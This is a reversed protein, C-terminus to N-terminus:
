KARGDTCDVQILRHTFDSRGSEIVVATLKGGKLCGTDIGLSYNEKQLGRKSNHGYIVTM